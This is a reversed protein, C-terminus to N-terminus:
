KAIIRLGEPTRVRSLAVYLQGDQFCPKKLDITVQDFTLGQSKHISLAYALKIPLQEISGVDKLELKDKKPNFVYEKKTFNVPELPYDVNEYRIFYSGQKEIFTGLTGNFLPADKSNILYMIKAGHKVEIRSELNFDDAKLNGEVRAEFVHLKTDLRALGAKNYAAVTANHPALIIGENPESGIFQRFYPAKQGERCLNLADIFDTDSQRLIEDLDVVITNLRAYVQADFIRDGQYTEYLVARTTDNLIPPLQKLDGIFVVQKKDLGKCGNKRLTWHIADLVDPRLMSVEDIFLTDINDFLRRKEGTVFNCDDFSLVGYPNLKFMSHITQGGINNAAVGTPAVAAVRRGMKQLTQIAVKTIFSKGTGAKGTLFINKGELVLDLFLQQKTSLQM